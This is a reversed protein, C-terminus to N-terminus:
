KWLSPLLLRTHISFFHKVATIIGYHRYEFRFYYYPHSNGLPSYLNKIRERMPVEKLCWTPLTEHTECTGIYHPAIYSEIGKNRARLGYDLDGIAHHFVPDLTGLISFVFKPILVCNGQFYDCKQETGNPTLLGETFTMGGYTTKKNNSESCTNGCVIAKDNFLKATSLLEKLADEFLFTDDNLWLFYDCEYKAAIKWATYMGRNWFLNGDGKIIITEPFNSKIAETTGDTSGDDVVYVLV